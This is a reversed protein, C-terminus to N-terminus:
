KNEELTGIDFEFCNDDDTLELNINYFGIKFKTIVNTLKVFGLKAMRYNSRGFQQVARLM